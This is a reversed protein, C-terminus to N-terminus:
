GRADCQASARFPHPRGFEEIMAVLHRQRRADRLLGHLLTLGNAPSDVANLIFRADDATSVIRPLGYLSFPPDDPHICMRVGVEEAVPIIEKLFWALNQACSARASTTMNPLRRSAVDRPQLQARDGAPRRDSQARDPRDRRRETAEAAVRGRCHAGRQLEGRCEQAEARVSRLRRFRDCRFAACLRDDAAPLDLDTRTWDVVPM